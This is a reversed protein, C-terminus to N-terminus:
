LARISGPGLAAQQAPILAGLKALKRAALAARAEEIRARAFDDMRRSLVPRAGSPRFEDWSTIGRAWLDRERWPGVGPILQFTRRIM